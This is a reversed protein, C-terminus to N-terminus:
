YINTKLTELNFLPPYDFKNEGEIWCFFFSFVYFSININNKTSFRLEVKGFRSYNIGAWIKYTISILNMSYKVRRERKKLSLLLFDVETSWSCFSINFQFESWLCLALCGCMSECIQLIVFKWILKVFPPLLYVWFLM